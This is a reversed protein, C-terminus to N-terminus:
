KVLDFSLFYFMQIITCVVFAIMVPSFFGKIRERKSLSIVEEGNEDPLMEIYDKYKKNKEVIEEYEGNERAKKYLESLAHQRKERIHIFMFISVAISVLLRLAVASIYADKSVKYYLITEIAALFNNAFHLAMPIKINKTGLYLWGFFIGGVFTFILKYFTTHMLAFLVSSIIIATKEGYPSLADCIKKRFVLEEMVAPILATSIIYIVIQYPHELGTYWLYEEGNNSYEFLIDYGLNNFIAIVFTGALGLFFVPLILDKSLIEKKVPLHKEKFSNKQYYDFVKIPIFFMLCHTICDILLFTLDSIISYGGAAYFLWKSFDVVRGCFYMVFCSIFLMIAIRNMLSQYKGYSQKIM